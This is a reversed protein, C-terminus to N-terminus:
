LEKFFQYLDVESAINLRKRLRRKRQQVSAPQIFTYAAIEKSSFDLRILAAFTLESIELDPNISQLKTIFDPYVERFKGLFTSDNKKALEIVEDQKKKIVEVQLEQTEGTLIKRRLELARIQKYAYIGTLAGVFVLLVIFVWMNKKYRQDDNKMDALFIKLMAGVIKERSDVIKDKEQIYRTNYYVANTNNGTKLYYESRAKYFEAIYNGRYVDKIPEYAQQAKNYADEANAYSRIKTYYSGAAFWFNFLDYNSIKVNNKTNIIDTAQRIYVGASDLNNRETHFEALNNAIHIDQILNRYKHLYILSSDFQGKQFLYDARKSYSSTLFIDKAKATDMEKFINLAKGNYHLANDFLNLYKNLSAYGDYLLARHIKNNSNKLIEDAKEIMFLADKSNGVLANINALNIYCLAKGEKYKKQDAVKLYQNNLAVVASYNGQKTLESNKITLPLDYTEYYEDGSSSHCSIIFFLIFIIKEATMIM